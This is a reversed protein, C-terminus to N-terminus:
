RAVLAQDRVEEIRRLERRRWRWADQAIAPPIRHFTWVVGINIERQSAAEVIEPIFLAAKLEPPLDEVRQVSRLKSPHLASQSVFCLGDRRDKLRFNRRARDIVGRMMGPAPLIVYTPRRHYRDDPIFQRRRERVM